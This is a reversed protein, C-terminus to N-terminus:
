MCVSVAAVRLAPGPVELVILDELITKARQMGSEYKSLAGADGTAAITRKTIAAFSSLSTRQMLNISEDCLVKRTVKGIVHFRGDTLKSRMEAANGDVMDIDVVGIPLNTRVNYMVMGLQKSTQHDKELEDVVKELSARYKASNKQFDAIRNNTKPADARHFLKLGYDGVLDLALPGIVRITRLVSQFDIPRLVAVVEVYRAPEIDFSKIEEAAVAQCMERSKLEDLVAMHLGGITYRRATKTEATTTREIAGEVGLLSRLFTPGVKASGSVSNTKTAATEAELSVGEWLYAACNLVMKENLYVPELFSARAPM